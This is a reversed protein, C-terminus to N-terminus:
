NGFDGGDPEDWQDRKRKKFVTKALRPLKSHRASSTVRNIEELHHTVEAVSPPEQSFPADPLM